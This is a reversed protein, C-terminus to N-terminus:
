NGFFRLNAPSAGIVWTGLVLLYYPYMTGTGVKRLTGGPAVQGLGLTTTVANGDNGHGGSTKWSEVFM